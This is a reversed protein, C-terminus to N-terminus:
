INSTPTILSSSCRAASPRAGHVRQMSPPLSRFDPSSANWSGGPPTTTPSATPPSADCGSITSCIRLLERVAETAYGKGTHTPHVVWGLDAQIQQAHERMEAQAWADEVALMLDGIVEGDLEIVLTKAMSMPEAFQERYEEFTRPARTLWQSVADLRRFSWTAEADPITAPRLTLRSTHRPWDLTALPATIADSM